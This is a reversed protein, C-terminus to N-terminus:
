KSKPNLIKLKITFGMMRLLEIGQERTKATTVITIEFGFIIKAKEPSIEPFIIHEKIGITLNGKNDFAKVDIGRFDRSRPLAIHILRELFDYMKDGRLTVIAGIIMGKRLKFASVSKKAKILAPRQGCVLSLDNLISQQIKKQEEGTKGVVLKGFGTNIVVKEIKPVALPNKFGFKEQMAPIIEKKYKEKLKIM